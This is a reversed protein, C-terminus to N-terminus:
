SIRDSTLRDDMLEPSELLASPPESSPQGSSTMELVQRAHTAPMLFWIWASGDRGGDPVITVDIDTIAKERPRIRLPARVISSTPSLGELLENLRQRDIVFHPLTRGQLRTASVNLFLAAARNASLIVGQADSLICALPMVDFFHQWSQQEESVIGRLRHCEADLTAMEQLLSDCTAMCENLLERLSVAEDRAGVRRVQRRLLELEHTWRRMQSNQLTSM